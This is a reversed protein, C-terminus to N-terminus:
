GQGPQEIKKAIDEKEQRVQAVLLRVEEPPEEGGFAQDLKDLFTDIFVVGSDVVNQGEHVRDKIEQVVDHVNFTRKQGAQAKDDDAM